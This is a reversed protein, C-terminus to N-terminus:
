LQCNEGLYAQDLSTNEWRTLYRRKSKERNTGKIDRSAVYRKKLKERNRNEVDIGTINEKILFM